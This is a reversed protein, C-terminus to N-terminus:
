HKGNVVHNPNKGVWRFTSVSHLCWSNWNGRGWGWDKGRGRPLFGDDENSVRAKAFRCKISLVELCCTVNMDILVYKFGPLFAGLRHFLRQFGTLVTDYTPLQVDRLVEAFRNEYIVRIAINRSAFIIDVNTLLQWNGYPINTKQCKVQRRYSRSEPAKKESVRNIQRPMIVQIPCEVEGWWYRFPLNTDCKHYVM